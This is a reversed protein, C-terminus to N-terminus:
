VMGFVIAAIFGFSLVAALVNLRMTLEMTAEMVAAKAPSEHETRVPPVHVPVILYSGTQLTALNFRYQAAAAQETELRIRDIM